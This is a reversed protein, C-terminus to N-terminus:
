FTDKQHDLFIHLLQIPSATIKCPNCTYSMKVIESLIRKRPLTQKRFHQATPIFTEVMAVTVYAQLCM